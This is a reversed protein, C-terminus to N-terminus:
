AAILSFEHLDIIAIFFRDIDLRRDVADRDDERGNEPLFGIANKAFHEELDAMGKKGYRVSHIQGALACSNTSALFCGDICFAGCTRYM